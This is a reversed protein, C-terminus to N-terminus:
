ADLAKQVMNVINTTDTDSLSAYVTHYYTGDKGQKSPFAVFDHGDRSTRIQCDHITVGNLELTFFVLTDDKWDFTRANRVNVTSVEIFERENNTAKKNNVKM